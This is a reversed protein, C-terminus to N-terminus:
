DILANIASESIDKIQHEDIFGDSRETESMFVEWDTEFFSIFNDWAKNFAGVSTDLIDGFDDGRPSGWGTLDWAAQGIADEIVDSLEVVNKQVFDIESYVETSM